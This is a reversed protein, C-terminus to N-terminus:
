PTEGDPCLELLLHAFRNVQAATLSESQYMGQSKVGIHVFRRLQDFWEDPMLVVAGTLPAQMRVGFVQEEGTFM